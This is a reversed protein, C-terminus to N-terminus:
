GPGRLLSRDVGREANDPARRGHRLPVHVLRGDANSGVGYWM